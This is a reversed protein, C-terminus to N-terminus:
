PLARVGGGGVSYTSREEEKLGTEHTTSRPVHKTEPWALQLRSHALPPPRQERWSSAPQHTEPGSVINRSTLVGTEHAQNDGLPHPARVAQRIAIQCAHCVVPSSPGAPAPAALACGTPDRSPVHRVSAPVTPHWRPGQIACLTLHPANQANMTAGAANRSTNRFSVSLKLLVAPDSYSISGSATACKCRTRLNPLAQGQWSGRTAAGCESASECM